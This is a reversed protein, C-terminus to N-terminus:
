KQVSPVHIGIYTYHTIYHSKNEGALSNEVLIAMGSAKSIAVKSEVVEDDTETRTHYNAVAVGDVNGDPLTQCVYSKANKLNEDSQAQNDKPSFSSTKWTGDILLYNVGGATIGNLTRGDSHTLTAHDAM